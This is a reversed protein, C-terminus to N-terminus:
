QFLAHISLSRCLFCNEQGTPIDPAFSHDPFELVSFSFIARFCRFGPSFSIGALLSRGSFFHWMFDDRSPQCINRYYCLASVKKRDSRKLFCLFSKFDDLRSKTQNFVDFNKKNHFDTGTFTTLILFFGAARSLYIIRRRRDALRYSCNGNGPVIKKLQWEPRISRIPPHSVCHVSLYVSPNVM